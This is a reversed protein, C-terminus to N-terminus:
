ELLKQLVEIAATEVTMIASKYDVTENKYKVNEAQLVLTKCSKLSELMASPIPFLTNTLVIDGDMKDSVVEVSPMDNIKVHLCHRPYETMFLYVAKGDRSSKLVSIQEVTKGDRNKHKVGQPLNILNLKESKIDGDIDEITELQQVEYPNPLEESATPKLSGGLVACGASSLVLGGAAAIFALTWGIKKVM